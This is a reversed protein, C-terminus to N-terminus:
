KMVSMVTQLMIRIDNINGINKLSELNFRMKKPLIKKIYVEDVSLGKKVEEGIIKDEDKFKISTESTVGAPLLLTAYWEDKYNNVYKTVEPRTGVFSMEGKFINILQPIEDMRFKRLKLGIRTIRSDNQATVLSGKKDAGTIMTRFKYIKFEECYQTVRIQSYFVPGKSDIKIMIAIIFFLPSLIMLMLASFILDFLRKFLLTMIKGKLIEYYPRVVETRMCDPLDEWKRLM